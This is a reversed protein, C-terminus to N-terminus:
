TRNDGLAPQRRGLRDCGVWRACPRNPWVVHSNYVERARPSSMGELAQEAEIIYRQTAMHPNEVRFAFLSPM